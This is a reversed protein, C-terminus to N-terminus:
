CLKQLTLQLWLQTKCSWYKRCIVFTAAATAHHVSRFNLGFVCSRSYQEPCPETPWILRNHESGLLPRGFRRRLSTTVLLNYCWLRRLGSVRHLCLFETKIGSYNEGAGVICRRSWHETDGTTGYQFSKEVSKRTTTECFWLYNCAKNIINIAM